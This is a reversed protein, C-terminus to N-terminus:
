AMYKEFVVKFCKKLRCSLIQTISAQGYKETSHSSKGIKHLGLQCRAITSDIEVSLHQAPIHLFFQYVNHQPMNKQQVSSLYKM